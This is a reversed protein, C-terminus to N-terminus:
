DWLPSDSMLWDCDAAVIQQRGRHNGDHLLISVIPKLLHKSAYM